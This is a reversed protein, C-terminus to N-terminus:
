HSEANKWSMYIFVVSAFVYVVSILINAWMIERLLIMLAAFCVAMAAMTLYFKTNRACTKKTYRGLSTISAYYLIFSSVLFLVKPLLRVETDQMFELAATINNLAFILVIHILMYHLGNSNMERDVIRDYMVEYGLFLGVVILFAMGAFYIGNASIGGGFYSATAIIMEGFTFVVYLMARESLHAFDVGIACASHKGGALFSSIIGFLIPVLSFFANQTLNYLPISLLVLAAETLLIIMLRRIRRLASDNGKHNRLEIAYQVAINILILSWAIHYQYTAWNENIGAAMFYILFMNIFMFVHDRIGNRGYINIYYTTYNWIQIVALASIIYAYFKGGDIFGNQFNHLLTNNRGIIYVFILDYILEVYEVKKEKTNILEKLM